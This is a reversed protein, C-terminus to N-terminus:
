INSIKFVKGSQCYKSLKHSIILACACIICGEGKLNFNQQINGNFWNLHLERRFQKWPVILQLLAIINVIHADLLGRCSNQLNHKLCEFFENMIITNMIYTYKGNRKKMTRSNKM